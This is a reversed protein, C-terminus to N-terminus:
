LNDRNYRIRSHAPHGSAVAINLLGQPMAM